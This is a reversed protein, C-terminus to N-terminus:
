PKMVFWFIDFYTATPSGADITSFVIPIRMKRFFEDVAFRASYVSNLSYGEYTDGIILGGSKLKPWWAQLEKMAGHYDHSTTIHIADISQDVFVSAAWVKNATLFAIKPFNEPDIGDLNIRTDYSNTTDTNIYFYHQGKWYRLVSDAVAYTASGVEVFSGTCNLINLVSGIHDREELQSIMPHLQIPDSWKLDAAFLQNVTVKFEAAIRQVSDIDEYVTITTMLNSDATSVLEFNAILFTPGESIKSTLLVESRGKQSLSLIVDADPNLGYCSCTIRLAGFIVDDKGGIFVVESGELPWHLTCNGSSLAPSTAAPVFLPYNPDRHSALELFASRGKIRKMYEMPNFSVLSEYLASEDLSPQGLAKSLNLAMAMHAASAVFLQRSPLFNSDYESLVTDDRIHFFLTYSSLELKNLTCPSLSNDAFYFPIQLTSLSSFYVSGTPASIEAPFCAFFDIDMDYLIDSTRTLAAIINAFRQEGETHDLLPESIEIGALARMRSGEVAAYVAAYLGAAVLLSVITKM